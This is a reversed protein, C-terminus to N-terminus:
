DGEQGLIEKALDIIRQLEVSIDTFARSFCIAYVEDWHDQGASSPSSPDTNNPAAPTSSHASTGRASADEALKMFTDFLKKRVFIPNPLYKPVKSGSSFCNSLMYFIFIVSAVNDRRLSLLARTTETNPDRDWVQFHQGLRRAEILRELLVSFHDLLEDFLYARFESVINPESVASRVLARTALLSQSLRVERISALSRTLDNPHDDTDRYLYRGAVIQYSQSLHMLLGSVALSLESRATFTWIFWNIPISCFTGILLAVGTTWAQKWLSATTHEELFFTVLAPVTFCILAALTSKRRNYAFYNFALPICLLVSFTAIIFPNSYHKAQNACWAWFVGLVCGALRKYLARWNSSNRRNSLIVYIIPAWLCHYERYWVKSGPLWGPLCLAVLVVTFKRAWRSEPGLLSNNLQWLKYRIPNSTSHVAFDKHDFARIRPRMGQRSFLDSVEHHKSTYSNYIMEFADDVDRKTQFYNWLFSAGQDLACQHSLRHIARHWQYKPPIVRWHVSANLQLFVELVKTMHKACQRIYRLFVLADSSKPNLLLESTFLGARGFEKYKIDLRRIRDHLNSLCALINAKIDARESASVNSESINNLGVQLSNLAHILEMILDFITESFKDRIIASCLDTSGCALGLNASEETKIAQDEYHDDADRVCITNEPASQPRAQHFRELEVNTLLGHGLPLSRLPSAAITLSNRLQELLKGDFRTISFQNAFERYGESLRVDIASVANEQAEVLMPIDNCYRADVLYDLLHKLDNAASSFGRGITAHGFRPFLFICVLLSLLLGFLYSMGQDWFHRWIPLSGESPPMSTAFFTATIGFSVSMYVLRGYAAALWSSWLGSLVLSLFLLAGEHRGVRAVSCVYWWLASWGQGLALGVISQVTIELQVGVTRVPHHILVAVPLFCSYVDGIWDSAPRVLCLFMAALYAVTFKVVAKWHVRLRDRFAKCRVALPSQAKPSTSVPPETAAVRQPRSYSADFFGDRLEELGYDQLEEWGSGEALKELRLHSLSTWSGIPSTQLSKTPRVGPAASSGQQGLDKLSQFSKQKYSGKLVEM